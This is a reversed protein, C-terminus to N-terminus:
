APLRRARAESLVRGPRTPTFVVHTTDTLTGERPRRALAVQAAGLLRVELALGLAGATLDVASAADDAAAPGVHAILERPLLVPDLMTFPDHLVLGAPVLVVWRRALGHLARLAVLAVPVGLATAVAGGWWREAALLLPGVTLGAVVAAWALEVPGLLVAGPARLPLRRESGYSSGNVFHEGTAPTLALVAAATAWAVALVDLAGAGDPTTAAAWATAAVAAPTAVRVVTLTVTRPVLVALVGLAWGAWLEFSAVARVAGSHPDLARALAPGATFPMALWAVRLPWPPEFM